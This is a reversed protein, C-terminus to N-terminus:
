VPPAVRRPTPLLAAVGILVAVLSNHLSTMESRGPLLWTGIILWVALCVNVYRAAPLRTAAAAVLTTGAGVLWTNTFQQGPHQWLFASLVLWLGMVMNFLRPMINRAM